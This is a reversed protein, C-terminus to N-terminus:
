HIIDKVNLDIYHQKLVEAAGLITLRSGLTRVLLNEEGNDDDVVMICILSTCRTKLERVLDEVTFKSLPGDSGDTSELQAEINM